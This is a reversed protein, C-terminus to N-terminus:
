LVADSAVLTGGAPTGPQESLVMSTATLVVAAVAAVVADRRASRVQRRQAQARREARALVAHPGVAARMALLAELRERMDDPLPRPADLASLAGAGSDMAEAVMARELRGRLGDPLPRPADLAGLLPGLEDTM